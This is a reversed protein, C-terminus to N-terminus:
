KLYNFFIVALFNVAAKLSGSTARWAENIAITDDILDVIWSEMYRPLKLSVPFMHSEIINQEKENIDFHKKSLQAASRPHTLLTKIKKTIKEKENKELFFDHLMGARAASIYDLKLLKAVKYSYYSVRICHDYRNYGHHVINRTKNFEENVLIDKVISYYDEDNIHKSINM